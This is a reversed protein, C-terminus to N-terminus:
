TAWPAQTASRRGLSDFYTVSCLNADAQAPPFSCDNESEILSGDWNQVTIFPRNVADYVTLNTQNLANTTTIQNGADDYGYLTCVNEDNENDPALLCAGPETLTAPNWNAVTAEVRNLEDYFTRSM